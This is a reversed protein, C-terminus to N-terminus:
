RRLECGAFPSKIAGEVEQEQLREPGGHREVQDIGAFTPSKDLPM